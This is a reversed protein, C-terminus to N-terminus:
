PAAFIQFYFHLGTKIEEKQRKLLTSTTGTQPGPVEVIKTPDIDPAVKRLLEKAKKVREPPIKKGSNAEGLAAVAFMVEIFRDEQGSRELAKRIEELLEGDAIGKESESM